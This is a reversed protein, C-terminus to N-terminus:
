GDIKEVRLFKQIENEEGVPIVMVGGENLQELLKLPIKAPAAGVHIVDFKINEDPWGLRGDGVRIEVKDKLLDPHSNKLNLISKDVLEPVHEIGFVKAGKPAMLAMAAVLIGTGSGVDLINKASVINKEL